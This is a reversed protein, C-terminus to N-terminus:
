RPSRIILQSGAASVARLSSSIGSGDTINGSQDIGIYLNGDIQLKGTSISQTYYNSM